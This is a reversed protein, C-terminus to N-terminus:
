VAKPEGLVGGAHVGGEALGDALVWATRYIEEAGRVGARVAVEVGIEVGVEVGERVVAQDAAEIGVGVVQVVGAVDVRNAVEGDAQDGAEVGAEVGQRVTGFRDRLITGLGAGERVEAEFGFEVLVPGCLL